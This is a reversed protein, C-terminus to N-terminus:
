AGAQIETKKKGAGAARLPIEIELVGDRLRAGVHETDTGPLILQRRFRAYPRETRYLNRESVEREDGTQASMALSDETPEVEIDNATMAPLKAHVHRRGDKEFADTAPMPSRGFYRFAPLPSTLMEWLRDVDGFDPYPVRRARPALDQPNETLNTM